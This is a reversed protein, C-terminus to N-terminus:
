PTSLTPMRPLHIGPRSEWQKRNRYAEIARLRLREQSAGTANKLVKPIAVLKPPAEVVEGFRIKEQGPFGNDETKVKKHKNKKAEFYKKKRERRKLQTSTKGIESEFRLDKVEKRKRKKKKKETSINKVFEDGSDTHQHTKMQGDTDGEKFDITNAEVKDKPHFKEGGGDEKKMRKEIDKHVKASGQAQHQTSSTLSMIKRLKSPLVDHKSAGPPPPLRTYGGGGGHAARYNKERRKRGKGGM